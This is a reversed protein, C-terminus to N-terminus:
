NRGSSYIAGVEAATLPTRYLRFDDLNGKWGLTGDYSGLNLPQNCNHPTLGAADRVATSVAVSAGNIWLKFRNGSSLSGDYVCAFHQWDATPLTASFYYQVANSPGRIAGDSVIAAEYRNASYDLAFYYSRQNGSTREKACVTRFSSGPTSPEFWVSVSFSSPMDLNTADPYTVYDGTGDLTLVRSAVAANGVLTPTQRNSGTAGDSADGRNFSLLKAVNWPPMRDLDRSAQAVLGLLAGILIALARKV